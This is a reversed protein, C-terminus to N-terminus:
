AAAAMELASPSAPELMANLRELLTDVEQDAVASAVRATIRLRESGAQTHHALLRVCHELHHAMRSADDRTTAPMLVAFRDGAYRCLLDDSRLNLLLLHSIAQLVRNGEAQGYQRNIQHFQNVDLLILACPQDASRAQELRIQRRLYEADALQTIRDFARHERFLRERKRMHDNLSFQEQRWFYLGATLTLMGGPMLLSELWNDWLQTKPIAFFEDLSDVWAGLAIAALGGALLSTVRGSPRSSLVLMVWLASMLATGGEGVIDMWNWVALPKAEGLSAYILVFVGALLTMVILAFRPAALMAAAPPFFIIASM